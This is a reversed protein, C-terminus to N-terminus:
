ALRYWNPREPRPLDPAPLALAVWLMSPAHPALVPLTASPAFLATSSSHCTHCDLDPATAHIGGGMGHASGIDEHSPSHLHLHHGFHASRSVSSHSDSHPTEHQCYNAAASWLMQMPMLVLLFVLLLRRM